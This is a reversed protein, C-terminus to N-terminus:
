FQQCPSETFDGESRRVDANEVFFAAGLVRALAEGDIVRLTETLTGHCPTRGRPFGLARRQRENLSRGLRFAAM